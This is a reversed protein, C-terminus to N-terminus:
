IDTVIGNDYFAVATRKEWSSVFTGDDDFTKGWEVSIILWKEDNRYGKRKADAVIDNIDEVVADVSDKHYIVLGCNNHLNTVDYYYGTREM